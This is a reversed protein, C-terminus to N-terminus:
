VRASNFKKDNCFICMSSLDLLYLRKYLRAENKKKRAWVIGNKPRMHKVGYRVKSSVDSAVGREWWGFRIWGLSYRM